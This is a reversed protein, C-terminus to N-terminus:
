SSPKLKRAAPGRDTRRKAAESMRRRAEDSRKMGVHAAGIAARHEPSKPRGKQYTSTGPKLKGLGSASLKARHADDLARGTHRQSIKRGTDPGRKLGTHVRRTQEGNKEREGPRAWRRKSSESIKQRALPPMVFGRSGEGGLSLNFGFGEVNARLFAVWWFEGQYAEEESDFWELETLAFAGAGYKAISRQIYSDRVATGRVHELFRRKPKYSKGVYHRGTSIHTIAYVCSRRM